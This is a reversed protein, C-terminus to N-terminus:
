ELLGVASTVTSLRAAKKSQLLLTAEKYKKVYQINKELYQM